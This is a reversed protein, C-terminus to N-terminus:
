SKLFQLIRAATANRSSSRRAPTGGRCHDRDRRGSRAGCLAALYEASVIGDSAGRLFLTPVNVRHLRHNLKPNHM